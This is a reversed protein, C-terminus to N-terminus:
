HRPPINAGLGAITEDRAADGLCQVAVTWRRGFLRTPVVRVIGRFNGRASCSERAADIDLVLGGVKRGSIRTKRQDLHVLTGEKGVSIKLDGALAPAAPISLAVLLSISVLVSRM